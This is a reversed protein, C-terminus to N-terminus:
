HRRHFFITPLLPPLADIRIIEDNPVDLDYYDEFPDNLNTLKFGDTMNDANIAKHAESSYYNSLKPTAIDKL